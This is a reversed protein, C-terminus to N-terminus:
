VAQYLFMPIGVSAFGAFLSVSVAVFVGVVVAPTKDLVRELAAGTRSFAGAGLAVACVVCTVALLPAQSPAYFPRTFLEGYLNLVRPLSYSSALPSILAYYLFTIFALPVRVQVRPSPARRRGSLIRRRHRITELAVPLGLMLGWLLSTLTSSRWFGILSCTAVVSFFTRAEAGSSGSFLPMAYDRFFGSVTVHWRRLFEGPTHGQFPARMDYPLKVGCLLAAAVALYSYATIDAVVRVPGSALWIFADFMNLNARNAAMSQGYRTLSEVLVYRQFAASIVLMAVKGLPVEGDWRQQLNYCFSGTRVLPGALARPYFGLLLVTEKLSPTPSDKRSVDVITIMAQLLILGLGIPRWVTDLSVNTLHWFAAADILEQASRWLILPVLVGVVAIRTRSRRDSLNPADEIRTCLFRVLWALSWLFVAGLPDIWAHFVTTVFVLWSARTGPKERWYYSGFMGLLAFAM